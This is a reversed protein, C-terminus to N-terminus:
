VTIFEILTFVDGDPARLRFFEGNETKASEVLITDGFQASKKYSVRLRKVQNEDIFELAKEMYRSNNMHGYFDIDSKKVLITDRLEFPVKPIRLKRESYDMEEKETFQVKAAVDDPIVTLEGNQMNVFAGISWTKVIANGEADYIFTNRYGFTKKCDFVGTVVRLDEKYKPFRIIDVQRYALLMGLGNKNLFEHFAPFTDLWLLSTDQLADLIGTIRMVRNANVHSPLVKLPLTFM